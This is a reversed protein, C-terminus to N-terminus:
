DTVKLVIKGRSRGGQSLEQARAAEDLRLVTEVLPKLRGSEIFGTFEELQGANPQVAVMAGQAGYKTLLEEPPPHVASVVFGSKKLVEFSRAQTEGGILDFVVDVDKVAEEFRTKTYDIVEDVGLAKLFDANRASATGIVYAGRIKALQAGLSGVGGAAAHILVKQGASLGALDFAQWSTLAGVPISAAEVFDLSSPKLAVESEKAAIHEAYASCHMLSTYGYIEDGQKLRSVGAGVEEVVGSFEAGPILPLPLQLWDKMEGERIKWDVPNVATAAIRILVEGPKPEPRPADEYALVEPGGYSHVRVAKMTAM